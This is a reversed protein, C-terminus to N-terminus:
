THVLFLSFLVLFYVQWLLKNKILNHIKLFSSIKWNELDKLFNALVEFLRPSDPLSFFDPVKPFSPPSSRTGDRCAAVTVTEIMETFDLYSWPKPLVLRHGQESIMMWNQIM